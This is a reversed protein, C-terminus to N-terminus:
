FVVCVIKDNKKEETKVHEGLLSNLDKRSSRTLYGLKRKIEVNLNIYLELARREM